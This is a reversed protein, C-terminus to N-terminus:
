AGSEFKLSRQLCRLEEQEPTLKGNGAFAVPGDSESARLWRLLVKANIKRDRSARATSVGHRAILDVEEQKSECIFVRRTM